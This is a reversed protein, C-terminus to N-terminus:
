VVAALEAAEEAARSPPVGAGNLMVFAAFGFWLLDYWRPVTIRESAFLGRVGLLVLVLPVLISLSMGGVSGTVTDNVSQFFGTVDHPELLAGGNSSEAARALAQKMTHAALKPSVPGLHEVLAQAEDRWAESADDYHVLLSGTVPNAEARRVGAAGVLLDELRSALAPDARLARIKLRIRGPIAHAVRVDSDM